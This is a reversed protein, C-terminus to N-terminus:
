LEEAAQPAQKKVAESLPFAVNRRHLHSSVVGEGGTMRRLSLIVPSNLMATPSATTHRDRLGTMIRVPIGSWGVM